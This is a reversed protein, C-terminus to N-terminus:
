GTKMTITVDSKSVAASRGHADLEGGVVDQVSSKTPTRRSRNIPKQTQPSTAQSKTNLGSNADIIVESSESVLAGEVMSAL